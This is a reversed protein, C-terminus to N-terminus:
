GSIFDIPLEWTNRLEEMLQEIDGTAEDYIQQANVTVGGPLQMGEFKKLNLGWQQKILQAVYKKLWMDNFTAAANVVVFAEVIIYDNELIDTGWRKDIYLNKEHRNFRFHEEGDIIKDMFNLFQKTMVYNTLGGGSASRLDFIDHLHMQYEIGFMNNASHENFQMVRKLHVISDTIGGTGGNSLDLYENTIDTATVQVKLYVRKVADSHFDQYVQLAEDVRDELQDADVNIEIVPAGLKRLAYDILEQRTTPSAM